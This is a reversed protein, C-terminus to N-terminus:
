SAMCIHQYVFKVTHVYAGYQNDLKDVLRRALKISKRTGVVENTRTNIVQYM